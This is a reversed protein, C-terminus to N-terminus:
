KFHPKGPNIVPSGLQLENLNHILKKGNSGIESVDSSEIDLLTEEIAREAFIGNKLYAIFDSPILTNALQESNAYGRCFLLNEYAYNIDVVREDELLIGLRYSSYTNKFTIFRM